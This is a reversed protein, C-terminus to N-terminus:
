AAVGLISEDAWTLGREQMAADLKALRRPGVGPLSAIVSRKEFQLDELTVKIEGPDGFHSAVADYGQGCGVAVAILTEDKKSRHGNVPVAKGVVALYADDPWSLERELLAADLAEM